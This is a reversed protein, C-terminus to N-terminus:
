NTHDRNASQTIPGIGFHIFVYTALHMYANHTDIGLM